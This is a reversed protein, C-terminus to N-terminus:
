FEEYGETGDSYTIIYYGHEDWCNYVPTRSVEYVAAPEPQPEVVPEPAPEVVPEPEPAPQEPAPAPVEQAPAQQVPEEYTTTEQAPAPTEVAQEYTGVKIIETVPEKVVTENVKEKSDEKGDIYKIKYTIEKEGDEGPTSVNETGKALTNDEEKKTEYKVTEKETKEEFTVRQIVIQMNPFIKQDETPSVIDDESLSIGCEKLAEGVTQAEVDKEETQGDHVLTIHNKTMVNIEMGDTLWADLEKDVFVNKELPVGEKELLDKVTGGVMVVEKTEGDVTLKVTNKRSIVIEGSETLKETLAPAVEDGENLTIEAGVLINEVTDPLSAEIEVTLQGDRITVAAPTKKEGCASFVLMLVVALLVGRIGKIRM